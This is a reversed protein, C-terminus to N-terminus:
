NVTTLAAKSLKNILSLYYILQNKDLNINARGMVKLGCSRVQGRGQVGVKSSLLGLCRM